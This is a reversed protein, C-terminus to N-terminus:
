SWRPGPSRLSSRGAAWADLLRETLRGEVATLAAAGFVVDAALEPESRVFGDVLDDLAVQQHHEDALVHVDYFPAAEPVGLRRLADAYRGMPGVSTMEFLALHGVLAGRWRRNLGFASVLNTTALTSAPLDDVYAGYTDDLGLARMTDAFLECHMHGPKGEGYEDAQILVMAAKARGTLRPIGWTHPDAEKLQYASRHIAFERVQEITGDTAMHGSLSPGRATTSLSLMAAKVEDVDVPRDDPLTESWGAVEDRLEAILRRELRVRLAIVAPDWELEPDVGDLGRYHLEYCLHLALQADEDDWVTPAAPDLLAVSRHGQLYALLRASCRGRALPLPASASVAPDPLAVSQALM